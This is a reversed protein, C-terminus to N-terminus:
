ESKGYNKKGALSKFHKKMDDHSIPNEGAQFETLGKRANLWPSEKHIKMELQRASLGGYVKLIRNLFARVDSGNFNPCPIPKDIPEWQFSRFRRYTQPEVAGHVWAQLEEDFLPEDYLALRWGQAYYLLKQLKLHTIEENVKQFHCIIYDAVKSATTTAM